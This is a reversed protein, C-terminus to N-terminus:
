YQANMKEAPTTVPIELAVHKDSAISQVFPRGLKPKWAWATQQAEVIHGPTTM